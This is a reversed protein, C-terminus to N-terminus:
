RVVLQKVCSAKTAVDTIKVWYLGAPLTGLTKYDTEAVPMEKTLVAQGGAGTVQVLVRSTKSNIFKVGVSGNSPNPYVSVNHFQANTFEITKVTSLRQQGGPWRQRVRFYYRGGETNKADFGYFYRPTATFKKELTAAKSFNQGDRSVEVDYMYNDDDSPGEWYLDATQVGTKTVAFNKLGIPLTVKPCRCYEFRFNVFASTAVSSTSNGGANASTMVSIDYNYIVSDHGYFQSIEASDTLTRIIEAKLATDNEIRIFDTGSTTNGDYPTLTYPGYPKTISNTLPSTLGPGTMEDSRIYYFSAKPSGTSGNQMVVSDIVGVMTVTLKVCRIMGQEPDFQPFKVQISTVGSEFPITTEMMVPTASSGDVCQAQGRLIFTTQLLFFFVASLLYVNKM